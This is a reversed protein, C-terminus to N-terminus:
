KMNTRRVSNLQQHNSVFSYQAIVQRVFMVLFFVQGDLLKKNRTDKAKTCYHPDVFIFLFRRM